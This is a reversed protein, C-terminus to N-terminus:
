VSFLVSLFSILSVYGFLLKVTNVGIQWLASLWINLIIMRLSYGKRIISLLILPVTQPTGFRNTILVERRKSAANLTPGYNHSQLACFGFVRSFMPTKVPQMQKTARKHSQAVFDCLSYNRKFYPTKTEVATYIRMDIQISLIACNGNNLRM